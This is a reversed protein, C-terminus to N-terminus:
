RLSRTSYPARGPLRERAYSQAVLLCGKMRCATGRAGCLGPAASGSM